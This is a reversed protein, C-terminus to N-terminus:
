INLDKIISKTQKKDHLFFWIDNLKSSEGPIQVSTINETDFNALTPRYPLLDKKTLNTDLNDFISNIITNAKFINKLTLTQKVTEKIFDRQTKMRGFDNDGYESPYSTMDNNHRFRLLQEAQEGNLLQYGKNLHIHLDQTPDDYDMDIPVDFYVGGIIDVIDMLAKNNIVAYYETTTGTIDSIKEELASIGKQSYVTNIKDTSKAKTKNKGIFTDRPVSIMYASQDKPNYSCIIITDTLKSDLDESIGLSLVKLPELNEIDEISQGLITCLVGQIGGGNKRVNLYCLIGLILLIIFLIIFFNRIPHKKKPESYVKNANTTIRNM